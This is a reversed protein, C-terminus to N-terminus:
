RDQTLIFWARRGEWGAGTHLEQHKSVAPPGSHAHIIRTYHATLASLFFSKQKKEKDFHLKKWLFDSINRQRDWKFSMRSAPKHQEPPKSPCCVQAETLSRCQVSNHVLCGDTAEVRLLFLAATICRHESLISTISVDCHHHAAASTCGSSSSSLCM